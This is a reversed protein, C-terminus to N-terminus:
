ESRRDGKKTCLMMLWMNELGYMENSITLKGRDSTKYCNVNVLYITVSCGWDHVFGGWWCQCKGPDAVM